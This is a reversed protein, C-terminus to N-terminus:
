KIWDKYAEYMDMGSCMSTEIEYRLDKFEQSCSNTEMGEIWCGLLEWLYDDTLKSIDEQLHEVVTNADVGFAATQLFIYHNLIAEIAPIAVTAPMADWGLKRSVLDILTANHAAMIADM